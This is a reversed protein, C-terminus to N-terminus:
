SASTPTKKAHAKRPCRARVRKGHSNVRHCIRRKAKRDKVHVTAVGTVLEATIAPAPQSATGPDGASGTDSGPSPAAPETGPAAPETGPTYIEAEATQPSGGALLAGGALPALAGFRGNNPAVLGTASFTGAAPDYEEVLNSGVFLAKGSALTVLSGSDAAALSGTPSWTGSAPDYLIASASLGEGVVLGGAVLVDGNPLTTAAAGARPAPMAPGSSFTGTGPDYIETSNTHGPINTGDGVLVTGDPLPAAWDSGRLGSMSGTASFSETAPDYIEASNIAVGEPANRGGAILVDGGPLPAIAANMRTGTMPAALSSFSGTAPDYVEASALAVGAHDHPSTYWYGGAVLVSGGPLPAAMASIRAQAMSGTAAFSPATAQAAAPLAVLACCALAAALSGRVIRGSRTALRKSREAAM